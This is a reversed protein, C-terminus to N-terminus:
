HAAGGGRLHAAAPQRRRAPAGCESGFTSAASPQAPLDKLGRLAEKGSPYPGMEQVPVTDHFRNWKIRPKRDRSFAPHKIIPVFAHGYKLHHSMNYTRQRLRSEGVLAHLHANM